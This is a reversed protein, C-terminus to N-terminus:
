GLPVNGGSMALCFLYAVVENFCCRALGVNLLCTLDADKWVELGNTKQNVVAIYPWIGLQSRQVQIQVQLNRPWMTEDLTM